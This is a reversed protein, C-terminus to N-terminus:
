SLATWLEEVECVLDQKRVYPARHPGDFRGDEFLPWVGYGLARVTGTWTFASRLGAIAGVRTELASSFVVDANAALLEALTRAPDGCLALKVVWVGRWGLDRWHRLDGPGVLSEDLGLPTPYDAALGLLLDESGRADPAIPQELFEIPREACRELWREAQRRDWAGNADLRLRAGTPLKALLDDLLVIEDALDGAGVKWKFSRFGAELQQEIVELARRGAPLLGAIPWTDRAAEGQTGERASYEMESAARAEIAAWATALAFVVPGELGDLTTWVGADVRDGLARLAAEASEITGAGFGPVPAAEGWGVRGDEAELRVLLGERETWLGHATRVPHRFPLRYRRWNLQLSM